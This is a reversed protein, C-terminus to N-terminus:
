GFPSFVRLFDGGPTLFVPDSVFCLFTVNKTTGRTGFHKMNADMKGFTEWLQGWPEWFPGFLSGFTVLFPGMKTHMTLDASKFGGVELHM